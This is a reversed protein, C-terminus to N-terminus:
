RALAAAVREVPSLATPAFRRPLHAAVEAAAEARLEALRRDSEATTYTIRADRATIKNGVDYSSTNVTRNIRVMKM